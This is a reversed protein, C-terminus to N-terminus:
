KVSWSSGEILIIDILWDCNSSAFFNKSFPRKFYIDNTTNQRGRHRAFLQKKGDASVLIPMSAFVFIEEFRDIQCADIIFYFSVPYCRKFRTKERSMIIVPLSVTLDIFSVLHLVLCSRLFISLRKAPPSYTFFAFRMSSDAVVAKFDANSLHGM